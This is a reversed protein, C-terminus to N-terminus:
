SSRRSPVHLVRSLNGHNRLLGLFYGLLMNEVQLDAMNLEEVLRKCLTVPCPAGAIFGSVISSYDFDGLRPHNMIDIFMRRLIPPFLELRRPAMSPLADNRTFQRCHRFHSSPLLRFSALPLTFWRACPVWSVALATTCLIRCVSFRERSFERVFLVRVREHYGARHGVFFANNVVNHHTLTAGKPQGTTGSTYQINVPDDPQVSAELETM